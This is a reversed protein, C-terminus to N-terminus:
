HWGQDRLRCRLCVHGHCISCSAPLGGHVLSLGIGLPSTRETHHCTAVGTGAWLSRPFSAVLHMTLYATWDFLLAFRTPPFFWHSVANFVSVFITASVMTGLFIQFWGTFYYPRKEIAWLFLSIKAIEYILPAFCCTLMFNFVSPNHGGGLFIAVCAWPGSLLALLFTMQWARGESWAAMNHELWNSYTFADESPSSLAAVGPEDWVTHEIDDPSQGTFRAGRFELGPPFDM